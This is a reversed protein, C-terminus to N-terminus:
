LTEIYELIVPDECRERIVSRCYRMYRSIMKRQNESLYIYWDPMVISDAKERNCDRCLGVYNCERNLDMRFSKPMFHDRTLIEHKGCRACVPEGFRDRAIIM